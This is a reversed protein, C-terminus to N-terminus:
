QRAPQPSDNAPDPEDDLQGPAEDAPLPPLLYVKENPRVLYLQERAHREIELPDDRLADIRARLRANAAKEAQVQQQLRAVDADARLSGVLGNAGFVTYATGWAAIGAAAWVFKRTKIGGASMRPRPILIRIGM